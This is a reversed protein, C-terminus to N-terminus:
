KFVKKLVEPLDALDSIYQIKYGLGGRYDNAKILFGNEIREITVNSVSIVEQGTAKTLQGQSMSSAKRLVAEAIQDADKTNM